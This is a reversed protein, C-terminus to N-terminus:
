PIGTAMPNPMWNLFLELTSSRGKLQDAGAVSLPQHPQLSIAKSDIAGDVFSPSGSAVANSKGVRDVLNDEFRWYGRLAPDSMLLSAYAERSGAAMTPVAGLAAAFMGTGVLFRGRSIRTGGSCACDTNCTDVPESKM